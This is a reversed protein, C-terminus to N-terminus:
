TAAIPSAAAASALADERRSTLGRRHKSCSYLFDIYQVSALSLRPRSGYQLVETLDIGRIYEVDSDRSVPRANRSGGPIKWPGAVDANLQCWERFERQNGCLVLIM